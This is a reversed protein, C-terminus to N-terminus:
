CINWKMLSNQLLFPKKGTVDMGMKQCRHSDSLPTPESFFGAKDQIRESNQYRGDSLDFRVNVYETLYVIQAKLRTPWRLFLLGGVM